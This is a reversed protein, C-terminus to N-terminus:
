ANVIKKIIGKCITNTGVALNVEKDIVLYKNYQYKEDTILKIYVEVKNLDIHAIQEILIPFGYYNDKDITLRLRFQPKLYLKNNSNTIENYAVNCKITINFIM